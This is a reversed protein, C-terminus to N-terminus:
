AELRHNSLIELILSSESLPNARYYVGIDCRVLCTKRTRRAREIATGRDEVCTGSWILM